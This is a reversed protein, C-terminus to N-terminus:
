NKWVIRRGGGAVDLMCAFKGVGVHMSLQMFYKFAVLKTKSCKLKRGGERLGVWIIYVHFFIIGQLIV